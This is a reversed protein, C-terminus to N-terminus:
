PCLLNVMEEVTLVDDPIDLGDQALLQGLRTIAPVDLDLQHLKDTQRFVDRPLGETVIRGREMVVVRNANVAEDMHHTIWIVTIGEKRNLRLVTELVERRGRPDLMATPEDLVLCKPRMALIGAIAIRQKQGGSLLHPAHKRFKSMGVQALSEEVRDIIKPSPLGLNEPGFAVDEEVVTAILQNDPNQFVM